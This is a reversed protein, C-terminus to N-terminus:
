LRGLAGPSPRRNLLFGVSVRPQTREGLENMKCKLPNECALRIGTKLQFVM